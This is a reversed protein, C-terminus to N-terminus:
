TLAPWTAALGTEHNDEESHGDTAGGDTSGRPWFLAILLVVCETRRVKEVVLPILSLLPFAYGWVNRWDM